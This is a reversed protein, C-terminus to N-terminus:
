EYVLAAPKKPAPAVDTRASPSASGAFSNEVRAVLDSVKPAEKPLFEEASRFVGAMKPLKLEAGARGAFLKGLDPLDPGTPLADAVNALFRSVKPAGRPLQAEVGVFAGLPKKLYDRLKIPM